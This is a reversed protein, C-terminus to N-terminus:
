ILSTYFRTYVIVLSEILFATVVLPRGEDNSGKETTIDVQQTYLHIIIKSQPSGSNQSNIVCTSMITLNETKVEPHLCTSYRCFIDSSFLGKEM